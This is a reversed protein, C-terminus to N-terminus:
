GLAGFKGNPPRPVRYRGAIGQFHEAAITPAASGSCGFVGFRTGPRTTTLTRVSSSSRQGTSRRSNFAKFVHPEPPYVAHERRESVLFWLGIYYRERVRTAWAGTALRRSTCQCPDTETPAFLLYRAIFLRTRRAPGVPCHRGPRPRRAVTRRPCPPGCCQGTAVAAYALAAVGLLVLTVRDV